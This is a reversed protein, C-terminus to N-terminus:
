NWDYQIATTIVKRRSRLLVRKSVVAGIVVVPNKERLEHKLTHMDLTDPRLGTMVSVRSPGCLPQQCYAANFRVGM